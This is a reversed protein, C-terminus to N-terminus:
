LRGGFAMIYSEVMQAAFDTLITANSKVESFFSLIVKNIPQIHFFFLYLINTGRKESWFSNLFRLQKENKPM